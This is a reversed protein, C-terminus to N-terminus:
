HKIQTVEESKTNILQNSTSVEEQLTAKVRLLPEKESRLHKLNEILETKRKLKAELLIQYTQM